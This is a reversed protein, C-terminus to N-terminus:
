YLKRPYHFTLWLLPFAIFDATRKIRSTTGVHYAAQAPSTNWVLLSGHFDRWKQLLCPAVQVHGNEDVESTLDLVCTEDDNVNVLLIVDFDSGSGHYYSTICSRPQMAIASCLLHCQQNKTITIVSVHNPRSLLLSGCTSTKSLWLPCVHESNGEKQRWYHRQCSSFSLLKWILESDCM